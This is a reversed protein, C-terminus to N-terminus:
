TIILESKYPVQLYQKYPVENWLHPHLQLKNPLTAVTVDCNNNRQALRQMVTIVTLLLLVNYRAHCVDNELSQFEKLKNINQPLQVLQM